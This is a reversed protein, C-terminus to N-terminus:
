AAQLESAVDSAWQAIMPHCAGVNEMMSMAQGAIYEARMERSATGDKFAEDGVHQGKVFGLSRMTALFMPISADVGVQDALHLYRSLWKMSALKDQPPKTLLQQLAVTNGEIRAEREAKAMRGAPSNQYRLRGAEMWHNFTHVIHKVSLRKNVRMRFDNFVLLVQRSYREAKAIANRASMAIHEGALGEYKM